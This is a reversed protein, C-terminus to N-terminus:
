DDVPAPGAITVAARDTHLLDAAAQRVEDLTVARLHDPLRQDYDLGLGFQEANQLFAAISPNTELMRPISGILYQRTEELEAPTPGGVGLKRVEEDIADLARPVNLPDVGARVLLPGEGVSADFASFAYYAMGQRERINEALRGGLGFQGFVNNMMWYAYYRPDLRRIAAFGYAIDSQPKGPMAITREQRGARRPQPILPDEPPMANWGDLERAARELADGPRVDGVITLTLSGPRVAREHLATLDERAIREASALTGKAPRGYPNHRRPTGTPKRYSM